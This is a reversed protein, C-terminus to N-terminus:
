AVMTNSTLKECQGFKSNIQIGFIGTKRQSFEDTWPHKANPVSFSRFNRNSIVRYPLKGSIGNLFQAELIGCNRNRVSNAESIEKDNLSIETELGKILIEKWYM